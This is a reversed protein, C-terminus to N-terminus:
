SLDAKGFKLTLIMTARTLYYQGIILILGGGIIIGLLITQSIEFPLHLTGKLDAPTSKSGLALHFVPVGM